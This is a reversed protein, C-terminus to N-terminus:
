GSSTARWKMQKNQGRQENKGHTTYKFRSTSNLITCELYSAYSKMNKFIFYSPSYHQNETSFQTQM